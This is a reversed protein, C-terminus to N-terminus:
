EGEVGFLLLDQSFMELAEQWKETRWLNPFGQLLYNRKLRYLSTDKRNYDMWSTLQDWLDAEPAGANVAIRTLTPALVHSALQALPEWAPPTLQRRERFALFIATALGIQRADSDEAGLAQTILQSMDDDSFNLTDALAVRKAKDFELMVQRWQADEMRQAIEWAQRHLAIVKMLSPPTETGNHPLSFRVALEVSEDLAQPDDLAVGELVMRAAHVAIINRAIMAARRPSQGLNAQELFDVLSVVYEGLWNRSEHEVEAIREACMEVLESLDFVHHPPAPQTDPADYDGIIVRIRDDRTLDGWNPVPIVFPFRDLLAFDLTESGGYYAQTSADPMDPAPPNMAAWRHRLSTLDIGIVRREHIIPFLKNQLDARCRSIEDFFVFSTDWITGPGTIFKLSTGSEDPLPIGVLDDYNILSANYHRMRQQLARAVREVLMSKATGHPGILLLPSETALAALLVPDVYKWGRIGLSETISIDNIMPLTM